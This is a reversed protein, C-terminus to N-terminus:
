LTNNEGKKMSKRAKTLREILGLLNFTFWLTVSLTYYPLKKGKFKSIGFIYLVKKM